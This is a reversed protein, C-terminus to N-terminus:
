YYTISIAQMRASDIECGTLTGDSLPRLPLSTDARDPPAAPRLDRLPAQWVILASAASVLAVGVAARYRPLPQALWSLLRDWIRLHKPSEAQPAPPLLWGEVDRRLRDHCRASPREDMAEASEIDLKLDFYAQGCASCGRLHERLAERTPQSCSAFHFAVLEDQVDACQM